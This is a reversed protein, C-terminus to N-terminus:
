AKIEVPTLVNSIEQEVGKTSLTLCKQFPAKLFGIAFMDVLPNFYLFNKCYEYCNIAKFLSPHSEPTYNKKAYAIYKNIAKKCIYFSATSIITCALKKTHYNHDFEIIRRTLETKLLHTATEGLCNKSIYLINNVRIIGSWLPISKFVFDSTQHGCKQVIEEIAPTVSLPEVKSVNYGFIGGWFITGFVLGTIMIGHQIKRSLHSSLFPISEPSTIKESPTPISSNKKVIRIKRKDDPANITIEDSSEAIQTTSDETPHIVVSESYINFSLLSLLLLKKTM